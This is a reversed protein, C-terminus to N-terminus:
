EKVACNYLTILEQLKQRCFSSDNFAYWDASTETHGADLECLHSESNVGPEHLTYSKGGDCGYNVGAQVSVSDVSDSEQVAAAVVPEEESEAVPKQVEQKENSSPKAEEVEKAEETEKVEKAEKAEKAEQKEKSPKSENLAPEKEKSPKSENSAPEKEKVPKVKKESVQEQKSPKAEEAVQKDEKEAPAETQGFAMISFVSLFVFFLLNKM